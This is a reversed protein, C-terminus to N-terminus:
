LFLIIVPLYFFSIYKPFAVKTSNKRFIKAFFARSIMIFREQTIPSNSTLLQMWKHLKKAFTPNEPFLQSLIECNL